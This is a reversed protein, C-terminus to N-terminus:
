RKYRNKMLFYLISGFFPLLVILLVWILKNRTSFDNALLNIIAVIPLIIAIAAIFFVIPASIVYIM